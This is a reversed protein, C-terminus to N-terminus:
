ADTIFPFYFELDRTLTEYESKMKVRTLQSKNRKDYQDNIIWFTDKTQDKWKNEVM